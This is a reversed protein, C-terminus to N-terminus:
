TYEVTSTVSLGSILQASWTVSLRRVSSDFAVSVSQVRAVGAVGAVTRWIAARWLDPDAPKGFMTDFDLVGARTDYRWTDKFIQLAADVADKIEDPGQWLAVDSRDSNLELDGPVTFSM